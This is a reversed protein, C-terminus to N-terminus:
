KAREMGWLWIQNRLSFNWGRSMAFEVTDLGHQRISDVDTGEPMLWIRDDPIDVRKVIEEIEAVDREGNVVVFKFDSNLKALKDLATWNRSARLDNGSHMLKPSVDFHVEPRSWPLVVPSDQKAMTIPTISGATEVEIDHGLIILTEVLEAIEKQQLMPEGGSIVILTPQTDIPWLERLKNLVDDTSM